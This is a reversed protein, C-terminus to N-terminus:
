WGGFIVMRQRASDYVATHDTRGWPPRGGDFMPTWVPPGKLSLAWTDMGQDRNPWGGVVIMRRKRPDYVVSHAGRELPPQGSPVLKSWTPTGALTLVWTEN